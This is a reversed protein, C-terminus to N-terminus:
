APQHNEFPVIRQHGAGFDVQRVTLVPCPAHRLMAGAISGVLIHSLGRRGHTGMIMLDYGHETVYATISDAPLGPQLAHDARVGHATLCASLVKLREELHKRHYKWEMALTLSFDLGYAVPEMVHLITISAGTHAAFRAAYELADFSCQSLDVPVVIRKIPGIKRFSADDKGAKVTLVPCPAMRVVREATSGILVHDLGTRGHTGLLLLDANITEAVVQIAQSPIGVEIRSQIAQGAVAAQKHIVELGRVSEARLHDLYMKNVTYDPDMGPYLELVTMVSLEAKWASALTLGYGMARDACASFDTAFLIRQILAGM